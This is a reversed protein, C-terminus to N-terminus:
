GLHQLTPSYWTPHSVWSQAEPYGYHLDLKDESTRTETFETPPPQMITMRPSVNYSINIVTGPNQAIDKENKSHM